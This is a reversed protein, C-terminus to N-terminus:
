AQAGHIIFQTFTGGECHCTSPIIVEEVGTFPCGSSASYTIDPRSLSDSEKKGCSYCAQLSVHVSQLLEPNRGSSIASGLQIQTVWTTLAEDGHYQTM